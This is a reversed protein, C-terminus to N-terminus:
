RALRAFAANMQQLADRLETFDATDNNASKASPNIGNNQQAADFRALAEDLYGYLSLATQQNSHIIIQELATVSLRHLSEQYHDTIIQLLTLGTLDDGTKADSIKVKKGSQVMEALDALTIYASQATDYLRRNAYKKIEILPANGM